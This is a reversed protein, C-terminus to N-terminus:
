DLHYGEFEKVASLSLLTKMQSVSPLQSLRGRYLREYDSTSRAAVRMLYDAEGSIFHCELVEPMRKIASEFADIEEQRQSTLKVEIFVQIELGVAKADLRAAYSAIKGESELIKVRRHCASLSLGVMESLKSMSTQGNKQLISLISVDIRDM